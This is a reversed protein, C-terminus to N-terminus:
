GSGRSSIDHRRDVAVAHRPPLLPFRFDVIHDQLAESAASEAVYKELELELSTVEGNPQLARDLRDLIPICGPYRFRADNSFRSKDAINTTLPPLAEEFSYDTGSLSISSPALPGPSVCDYSAGAGVFVLLAENM